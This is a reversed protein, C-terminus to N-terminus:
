AFFLYKGDTSCFPQKSNYGSMNVSPVLTPVSWGEAKKETYYVSSVTQGKEKRWQSFYLYKGDASIGAAGQNILPDTAPIALPTMAELSGNKLTAYFLRSHYPNVGNVQVSDTQTSSVLYQNGNIQVPAFVGKESSGPAELKQTKFLISDPRALQQQIYQLTLLEKEVADKNPTGAGSTVLYQKLSEEAVSYNGLNRECIAYWYLADAYQAPDKETCEKYTVAAEQWYNALRYSEAQKFLIDTRSVSKNTVAARKGKSNLPFDSITKQKKPPNLFQGYLHAATYYEGQAFYQDGLQVPNKVQQSQSQMWCTCAALLLLVRSTTKMASNTKCFTIQKQWFSLLINM